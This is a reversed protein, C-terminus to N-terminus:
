DKECPSPRSGSRVGCWDVHTEYNGLFQESTYLPLYFIFSGSGGNEDWTGAITVYGNVYSMLDNSITGPCYSGNVTNGIQTLNMSCPASGSVQAGNQTLDM